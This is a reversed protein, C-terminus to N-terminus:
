HGVEAAVQLSQFLGPLEDVHRLLDARLELDGGVDPLRGVELPRGEHELVHLAMGAPPEGGAEVARHRPQGDREAAAHVLDDIAVAGRHARGDRRAQDRVAGTLFHHQQAFLGVAGRQRDHHVGLQVGAAVEGGAHHDPAIGVGADEADPELPHLELARPPEAHVHRRLPPDPAGRELGLVPVLPEPDGDDQAGPGADIEGRLRLDGVRLLLEAHGARQGAAGDLQHPALVTSASTGASASITISPCKRGPTRSGSPGNPSTAPM